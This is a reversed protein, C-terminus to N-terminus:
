HHYANIAYTATFGAVMPHRGHCGIKRHTFKVVEQMNSLIFLICM